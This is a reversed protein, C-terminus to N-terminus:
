KVRKVVVVTKDDTLKGKASYVEVSQLIEQAIEKASRDKVRALMKALRKESYLVGAADVAESLGDTYLLLVDGKEIVASERRYVQDPFPGIIVGTSELLETTGSTAHFLIPSNHGANVYVCLGRTDNTLECYCLTIFREDLFIRNVLVNIKQILTGIKTQFSAGMRLAGSVYLAQVAASMGKSAADGIVIALRDKEDNEIYDFFDGGVERAAISVGFVEYNHFHMEHEPLISKQIKRAQDLEKELARSRRENRWSRLMETVSLGIIDLTTAAEEHGLSANFSLIFEFLKLTGVTKIEGVGTASYRRIGRSRLYRSTEKLVVTRKKPLMRFMEYESVKLEFNEEIHQVAGVQAILSYSLTSPKLQWVRGGQISISAHQVIQMVVHTLLDKSSSFKRTSFSEITKRLQTQNM